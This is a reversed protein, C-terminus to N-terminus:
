IIIEYIRGMVIYFFLGNRDLFAINYGVLCLEVSM